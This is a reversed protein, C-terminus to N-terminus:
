LLGRRSIRIWATGMKLFKNPLYMAASGGDVPTPGGVSTWTLASLDLVQSVIPTEGTSPVFIRGDPLLFVHPYYPFFFPAGNVQTWSNTSPNYIEQITADCGDCTMEGSIVLQRGDSLTTATPYWRPYTM